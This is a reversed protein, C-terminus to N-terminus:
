FKYMQYMLSTQLPNSQHTDLERSLQELNFRFHVSEPSIKRGPIFTKTTKLTIYLKSEALKFKLM